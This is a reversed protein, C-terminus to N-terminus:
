AYTAAVSLTDQLGGIKGPGVRLSPMKTLKGVLKIISRVADEVMTTPGFTLPSNLFSSTVTELLLMIKRFPARGRDFM